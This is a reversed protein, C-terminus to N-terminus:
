YTRNINIIRSWLSTYIIYLILAAVNNTLAYFMM